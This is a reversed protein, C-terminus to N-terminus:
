GVSRRGFGFEIALELWMPRNIELDDAHPAIGHLQRINCFQLVAKKGLSATALRYVKYEAVDGNSPCWSFSGDNYPSPRPPPTAKGSEYRM